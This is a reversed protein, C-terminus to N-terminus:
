SGPSDDDRWDPWWPLSQQVFDSARDSIEAKLETARDEDIWGDALAADIRETAEAVLADQVVQLDVGQEAAVDAISNGDRLADWLADEDLRLAEAAADLGGFDSPGDLGWWGPGGWWGHGGRWDHDRWGPLGELQVFEDIREPLEAKLETARDEDIRGDALAADIRETATAVMADVVAQLEVGREEAVTAISKGDALADRLEDASIGLTEAAASLGGHGGEFPGCWWFDKEDDDPASASPEPAPASPSPESPSPASPSPEASPTGQALSVVPSFLLAGVLAGVAVAAAIVGGRLLRTRSTPTM